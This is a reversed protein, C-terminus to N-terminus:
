SVGVPGRAPLLSSRELEFLTPVKGREEPPRFQDVQELLWKLGDLL